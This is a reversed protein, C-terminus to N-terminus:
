MASWRVHGTAGHGTADARCVSAFPLPWGIPPFPGGVEYGAREHAAEEPVAEGIARGMEVRLAVPVVAGRRGAADGSRLMSAHCWTHQVSTATPTQGSCSLAAPPPPRAPLPSPLPWGLVPVMEEKEPPVLPGGTVVVGSLAPLRWADHSAPASGGAAAEGRGVDDGRKQPRLLQVAPRTRCNM